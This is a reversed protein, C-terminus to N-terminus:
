LSCSRTRTSTRNIDPSTTSQSATTLVQVLGSFVLCDLRKLEKKDVRVTLGAMEFSEDDLETLYEMTEGVNNSGLALIAAKAAYRWERYESTLTPFKTFNIPLKDGQVM